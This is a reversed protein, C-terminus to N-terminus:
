FGYPIGSGSMLIEGTLANIVHRVGAIKGKTNQIKIDVNWALPGNKDEQYGNEYYVKAEIKVIHYKNKAWSQVEKKAIRSAEEKTVRHERESNRLSYIFARKKVYNEFTSTRYTFYYQLWYAGFFLLLVILAALTTRRYKVLVKYVRKFLQPDLLIILVTALIVLFVFFGIELNSMRYFFDM